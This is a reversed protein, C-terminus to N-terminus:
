KTKKFFSWFWCIVWYFCISSGLIVWGRYGVGGPYGTDDEESNDAAYLHFIPLDTWFLAAFALALFMQFLWSSFQRIRSEGKWELRPMIVFAVSLFFIQGLVLSLALDKFGELVRASVVFIAITYNISLSIIHCVAIPFFPHEQYRVLSVRDTRELDTALFPAIIPAMWTKSEVM